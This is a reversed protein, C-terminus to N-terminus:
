LADSTLSSGTNTRIANMRSFSCECLYIFYFWVSLTSFTGIKHHKPVLARQSPYDTGKIQTPFHLM